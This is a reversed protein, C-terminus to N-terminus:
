WQINHPLLIIYFLRIDVVQVTKRVTSQWIYPFKVLSIVYVSYIQLLQTFFPYQCIVVIVIVSQWLRRKVKLGSLARLVQVPGKPAREIISQVISTLHLVHTSGLAQSIHTHLTTYNHSLQVRYRIPTLWTFSSHVANM